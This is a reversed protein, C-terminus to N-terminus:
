FSPILDTSFFFFLGQLLGYVHPAMLSPCLFHHFLFIGIAKHAADENFKDLVESHVGRLVERLEAPLQDPSQILANFLQQAFLWLQLTNVKADEAETLKSPDVEMELPGLLSSTHSKSNDGREKSKHSIRAMFDLETVRQAFISWVYRLAIIRCYCNFMKCSISNARFLATDRNTAKVERGVFHQLMAPVADHAAFIYTLAKAVNEAETAKATNCLISAFVFGTSVILEELQSFNTKQDKNLEVTKQTMTGYALAEYDPEIAKVRKVRKTKWVIIFVIFAVIVILLLGGLLPGVVLPVVSDEEERARPNRPYAYRKVTWTNTEASGAVNSVTCKIERIEGPGVFPEDDSSSDEDYYGDEESDDQRRRQDWKDRNRYDKMVGRRRRGAETEPGLNNNENDVVTKDNPSGLPYLLFTNSRQGPIQTFTGNGTTWQWKFIPKPFGKAVVTFNIYRGDQYLEDGGTIIAEEVTPADPLIQVQLSESTCLEGDSVELIFQLDQRGSVSVTDLALTSSATDVIGGVLCGRGTNESWHYLLSTDNSSSNFQSDEAAVQFSFGGLVTGAHLSWPPRQYKSTGNNNEDPNTGNTTGNNNDPLATSSGVLVRGGTIVPPTNGPGFFALRNNNDTLRTKTGALLAVEAQTLAFDFIRLDDIGGEWSGRQNTALSPPYYGSCTSAPYVEDTRESCSGIFRPMAMTHQSDRSFAAASATAKTGDVFLDVLEPGFVLALHFWENQDSDELIFDSTITTVESPSDGPGVQITLTFTGGSDLSLQWRRCDRLCEGMESILLSAGRPFYDYKEYFFWLSVSMERTQLSPDWAEFAIGRWGDYFVYLHEKFDPGPGGENVYLPPADEFVETPALLQLHAKIPCRTFARFSQTDADFTDLDLPAYLLAQQQAEAALRGKPLVCTWLSLVALSYLVFWLSSCSSSSSSSFTYYYCASPLSSCSSASRHASSSSHLPSRPIRRDHNHHHCSSLSTRGRHNHKQMPRETRASACIRFLALDEAAM